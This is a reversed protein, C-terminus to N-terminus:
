APKKTCACDQLQQEMLDQRASLKDDNIQAQATVQYLIKDINNQLKDMRLDISDFTHAVYWVSVALAVLPALQHRLRMLEAIM